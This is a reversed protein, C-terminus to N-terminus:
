LDQVALRLAQLTQPKFTAQLKQATTCCKRYTELANLSDDSYGFNDCWDRFSMSDAESDMILSHLVDAAKPAQPKSEMFRNLQKRHGTGTYYSTEWKGIKVRWEDCEWKDRMTAGLLRAHFTVGAESLITEVATRIETANM